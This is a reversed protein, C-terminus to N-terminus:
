HQEKLQKSISKSFRCESLESEKPETEAPRREANVSKLEIKIKLKIQAMTKCLEYTAETTKFVKREKLKM